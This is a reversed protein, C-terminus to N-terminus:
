TRRTSGLGSDEVLFKVLFGSESKQLQEVNISVFGKETFKISNSILNSLVQNIRLQDGTVYKPLDDSINYVFVVNANKQSGKYFSCLEDLSKPLDFPEDILLFENAEIKSFDLGDTIVRMLWESSRSILGVFHEQREDLHTKSLIDTIGVLGNLPTRIEHSMTALFDSKARNASEALTLTKNLERLLLAVYLPLVILGVLLSSSIYPDVAFRSSSFSVFFFGSVACVTSITLYLQGFRFGNGFAVWLYVIFLPAGLIGHFYLASTIAGNDLLIGLIRRVICIRPNRILWVIIALACVFFIGATILTYRDDQSIVKDQLVSYLLYGFAILGIILRIIAQKHESDPRDKWLKTINPSNQQAASQM